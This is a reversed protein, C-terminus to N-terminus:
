GTNEPPRLDSVHGIFGELTMLHKRVGEPYKPILPSPVVLQVRAQRMERFQNESVGEQLTLLHKREIRDAENIVQRWRDRCTTKVALMCLHEKPYRDDKYAAENPFLFDPSKGPDSEPQYSFHEGQVLKEEQLIAKLQWELSLGSRAKRRQLLKQAKKVFEGITNFGRKIAPLEILSEISLFLDFELDRRRLLRIDPSGKSAPYMERSREAIESPKPFEKAWAEPILGPHLLPAATRSTGEDVIASYYDGLPVWVITKGPDVPGVRTVFHEEDEQDACVWARCAGGNEKPFAFVAIAGTSEPHLLPSKAGGLNTIRVEDRTGGRLRNNYWIAKADCRFGHSDIRFDFEVRPNEKEPMHLGPFADFLFDKPLYPGAQHSQNALTDNASLRKVYLKHTGQSHVDLWQAFRQM